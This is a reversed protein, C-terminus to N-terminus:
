PAPLWHLLASFLQGPDVPKAVHANMGAERCISVDEDFANATLALIPVSPYGPLRRIRRTAELGDMVPMQVDMLILDYHRNAAMAVAEAGDEAVDFSLDLDALLEMAVERNIENDEVLLIAQGAHRERLLRECDEETPPAVVPTCGLLHQMCDVFGAPSVPKALLAHFGASQWRERGLENDYAALLLYDPRRHLVMKAVKAALQMGDVDPMHWDLILMRFSEDRQDAEAIMRLATEGSDAQEVRMGQRLLIEVLVRRAEPHDDAVLVRLGSLGAVAPLFSANGAGKGLCATFWFVSGKGVQSDVGIEGGMMTVLRRSIALGLGTGGYKRTTSSDAQEFASFLRPIAEPEVGVGTDEVEFRVLLQDGRGKLMRARIIIAGHETFKVANGAFNLLIQELRLPDGQFVGALAPELDRVLELGKAAAREATMACVSDIVKDIDFSVYELHLRGAEIKSIDLIDNIISLLHQAADSIKRLREVQGSDSLEKQLLHTLGIIANMPTRIEHSMNALFSSKSRNAQEAVDRAMALEDNAAALDRTRQVVKLDLEEAWRRLATTQEGVTDLLQDFLMGLRVLEDDGPMAGVRVAADGKGVARMTTELHALPNLIARALRWSVWTALLATAVLCFALLALARWRFVQFPAEPIGVYLMGIRQGGYDLLPEYATLAWQDVVFARQIWNEGRDFVAEKVSQSVRTGTAREGADRHVSTAIRVDGLFLTVDGRGGLQRLGGASITDSLEDVFDDNRNLLIGGVVTAMVKGADDLMPVAAVIVLGRSEEKRETPTAMPIDQLDFHARQLLDSSLLSLKEPPLVELGMRAEGTRLSDGLVELAPYPDGAALGDAAGLVRSRPDVIALFDFGVNKQRSALEETLPMGRTKHLVLERMRRSDALSRAFSRADNEIRELHSRTMALDGAVKFTVLQDFYRNGVVFLIGGLVPVVLLPLFALIWLRRKLSGQGFRLALSLKKNKGRIISEGAGGSFFVGFCRLLSDNYPFSHHASVRM